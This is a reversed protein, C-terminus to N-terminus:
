AEYRSWLDCPHRSCFVGLSSNREAPGLPSERQAFRPLIRARGLMAVSGVGEILIMMADRVAM